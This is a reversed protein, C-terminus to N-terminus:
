LIESAIISIPEYRISSKADNHMKKNALTPILVFPINKPVRNAIEHGSNSLAVNKPPIHSSSNVIFTTCIGNIIVINM